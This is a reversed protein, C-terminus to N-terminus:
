TPAWQHGFPDSESQDVRGQLSHRWFIWPSLDGQVVKLKGSHVSRSIDLVIFLEMLSRGRLRLGFVFLLVVLVVFGLTGAGSRAGAFMNARERSSRAGKPPGVESNGNNNQNDICEM